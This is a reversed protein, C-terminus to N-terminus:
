SNTGSPTTTARTGTLSVEGGRRRARAAGQLALEGTRFSIAKKLGSPSMCRETGVVVCTLRAEMVWAVELAGTTKARNWGIRDVAM